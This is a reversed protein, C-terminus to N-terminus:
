RRSVCLLSLFAPGARARPEPVGASRSLGEAWLLIPPRWRGLAVLGLGVVAVAAGVAAFVGLCLEVAEGVGDAHHVDGVTIGSHHLAIAGGIVLVALLAAPQHRMRRAARHIALASM